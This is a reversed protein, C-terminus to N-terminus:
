EQLCLLAAKEVLIDTIDKGRSELRIILDRPIKHFSMLFKQRSPLLLIVENSESGFLENLTQSLDEIHKKKGLGIVVVDISGKRLGGVKIAQDIQDQCTMKMLLHLDEKRVLLNKKQMDILVQFTIKRVHELGAVFKANIIQIIVRPHDIKLRDFIEPPNSEKINRFGWVGVTTSHISLSYM